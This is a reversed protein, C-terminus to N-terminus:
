LPRVPVHIDVFHLHQPHEDPKNRVIEYCFSEDPQFGSDPLWAGMIADWAEEYQNSAVICSAVAYKGGPITMQGVEGDTETGKPVTMCASIRLKNDDTIKPDDHYVCLFTTEPPKFLDRALAWKFLREFLNRFLAEDAQYPGINRIYAVNFTPMERIRIEIPNLNKPVIKWYVQNAEADFGTRVSPTNENQRDPLRAQSITHDQNGHLHKESNERWQSASMQFREKFIRAFSASSTYGNDLAIETISKAPDTALQVAAKEIRIRQIFQNLPEGVMARFLRHFHFPSFHAIQALHSLPLEKQLNNEIYDIVRNIRAVYENRKSNEGLTNM